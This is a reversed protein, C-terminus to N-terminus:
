NIPTAYVTVTGDAPGGTAQVAVARVETPNEPDILGPNAALIAEKIQLGGVAVEGTGVGAITITAITAYTSADTLTGPVQSDCDVVEPVHAAQITITASAAADHGCGVFKFVDQANLWTTLLMPSGDRIEEEPRKYGNPLVKGVLVTEADLHYSRVDLGVSRAM